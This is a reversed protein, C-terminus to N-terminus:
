ESHSSDDQNENVIMLADERNLVDDIFDDCVSRTYSYKNNHRNCLLKV